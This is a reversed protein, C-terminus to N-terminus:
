KDLNKRLVKAVEDHGREEALDLATQGAETEMGPEGQHDLMLRVMDINGNAAATHLPTFSGAM